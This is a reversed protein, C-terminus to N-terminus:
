ECFHAHVDMHLLFLILMNIREFTDNALVYVDMRARARARARMRLEVVDLHVGIVRKELFVM